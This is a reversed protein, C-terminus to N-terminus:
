DDWFQVVARFIDSETIMGVVRGADDVVPLGSVKNDLMVKAADGLTDTASITIPDRSMAGKVMIRSLTEHLDWITLANMEPADTTHIDARTVIGVIKGDDIVPLRRVNNETMLKRANIVPTIPTVTIVDGNMWDKVLENKM